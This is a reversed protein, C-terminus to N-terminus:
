INQFVAVIDGDLYGNEDYEDEYYVDEDNKDYEYYGNGNNEDYKYDCYDYYLDDENDLVQGGGIEPLLPWDPLHMEESDVEQIRIAIMGYVSLIEPLTAYAAGMIFMLASATILITLWIKSKPARM